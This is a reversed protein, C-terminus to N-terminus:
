TVFKPAPPFTAHPGFQSLMYATDWYEEYGIVYGARHTFFAVMPFDIVKELGRLMFETRTHVAFRSEDLVYPESIAGGWNRTKGLLDEYYLRINALGKFPPFRPDWFSADSAFLNVLREVDLQEFGEQWELALERATRPALNKM